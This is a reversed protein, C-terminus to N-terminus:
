SACSPIQVLLRLQRVQNAHWAGGRKPPLGRLTLEQVIERLSYNARRYGVALETATDESYTSAQEWCNKVTQAHWCSGVEPMLNEATLRKGIEKYSINQARLEAIRKTVRDQDRVAGSRDWHKRSYLGERILVRRVADCNWSKKPHPAGEAILLDM